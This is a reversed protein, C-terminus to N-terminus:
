DSEAQYKEFRRQRKRGPRSASNARDTVLTCRFLRPLELCPGSFIALATFVQNQLKLHHHLLKQLIEVRKPAKGRSIDREAEAKDSGRKDEQTTTTKACRREAASVLGDAELRGVTM